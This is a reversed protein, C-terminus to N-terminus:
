LSPICISQSTAAIFVEDEGWVDGLRGGWSKEDTWAQRVHRDRQDRPGWPKSIIKEPSEGASPGRPTAQGVVSCFMGPPCSLYWSQEWERKEM